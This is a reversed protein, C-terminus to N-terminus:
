LHFDTDIEEIKRTKSREKKNGRDLVKLIERIEIVMAQMLALNNHSYESSMNATETFSDRQLLNTHVIFESLSETNNNGMYIFELMEEIVPLNAGREELARIYNAVHGFCKESVISDYVNRNSVLMKTVNLMEELMNSSARIAEELIERIELISNSDRALEEEASYESIMGFNNTRETM